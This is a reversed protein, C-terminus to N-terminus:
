VEGTRSLLVAVPRTGAFESLVIVMSATVPVALFAGAIGWLGSWVALSALIAVPSLNLSNGMVYPDIFNGIVFQVVALAALLALVSGFDSFQVLAMLVPLAISIVTGLYPIFNLLGTVVAWFGALELGMLRMVAWSVLALVVSLLTKLALYSGIRANINEIVGRIRAVARPDDSIAAIKGDFGRRELLLFAVYLFIVVFSGLIGTISAVATTAVRQINVQALLSERLTAWTPEREINLMAAARQLAELISQQYYPALALAHDATSMVFVGLAFFLAGIGVLTLTYRVWVPLRYGGLSARELVRLMGVVVYMALVGLVIPVLVSKAIYMTFGVVFAIVVGSALTPLRSGLPSREHIPLPPTTSM